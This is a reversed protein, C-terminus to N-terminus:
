FFIKQKLNLSFIFSTGSTHKLYVQLVGWACTFFIHFIFNILAFTFDFHTSSAHKLYVELVGWAYILFCINQMLNLTSVFSEQWACSVWDNEISSTCALSVKAELEKNTARKGLHAEGRAKWKWKHMSQVEICFFV